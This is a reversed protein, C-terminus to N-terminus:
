TEPIGEEGTTISKGLKNESTRHRFTEYTEKMKMAIELDLKSSDHTYKENESEYWQITRDNEKIKDNFSNIKQLNEEALEKVSEQSLLQLINKLSDNVILVTHTPFWETIRRTSDPIQVPSSINLKWSEEMYDLDVVDSIKKNTQHTIIINMRYLVFEITINKTNSTIRIIDSVSSHINRILGGARIMFFEQSFKIANKNERLNNKQLNKEPSNVTIM